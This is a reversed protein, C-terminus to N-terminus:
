FSCAHDKCKIIYRKKDSAVVKFSEDNDLVFARIAQCAANISQFQNHLQMAFLRLLSLNRIAEFLQCVYVSYTCIAEIESHSLM